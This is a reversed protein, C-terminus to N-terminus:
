EEITEFNKLNKEINKLQKEINGIEKFMKKAPMNENIEVNRLHTKPFKEELNRILLDLEGMIKKMEKFMYIKENRIKELKSFSELSGVIEKSSELVNRRVDVPDEIGIFFDEKM